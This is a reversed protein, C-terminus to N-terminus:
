KRIEFDIANKFETGCLNSSYFIQNERFWYLFKKLRDNRITPNYIDRQWYKSPKIVDSFVLTKEKIETYKPRIFWCVESTEKDILYEALFKFGKYFFVMRYIVKYNKYSKPLRPQPDSQWEGQNLMKAHKGIVYSSGGTERCYEIAIKVKIEIGDDDFQGTTVWTEEITGQKQHMVIDQLDWDQLYPCVRTITNGLLWMKVFGRKRDVTCFLNMLKSPEDYLYTTGNGQRSMFEEFIIDSVDLFSGGAYNQEISLATVYGIKEGRVTKFTNVDYFALYIEQRYLKVTNYKGNTLGSIDVDNFYSEILQSKIEEVIRRVLMFRKGAKIDETIIEKPNTYKCLYRKNDKLYNGFIKKHKVQYSKGGSREGYILNIGAGRKDIEDLNYYIMKNM